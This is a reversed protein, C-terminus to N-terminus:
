QYVSLDTHKFGGQKFKQIDKLILEVNKRDFSIPDVGCVSTTLVDFCVSLINEYQNGSHFTYIMNGNHVKASGILKTFQENRAKALNDWKIFKQLLEEHEKVNSKLIRLVVFQRGGYSNAKYSEARYILEQDDPFSAISATTLMPTYTSAVSNYVMGQVPSNVKSVRDASTCGALVASVLGILVLKKM